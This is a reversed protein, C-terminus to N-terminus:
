IQYSNSVNPLIIFKDCISRYPITPENEDGIIIARFRRFYQLFDYPIEIVIILFQFYYIELVYYNLPYCMSVM